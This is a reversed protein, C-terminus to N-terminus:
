RTWSYENREFFKAEGEYRVEKKISFSKTNLLYTYRFLANRDNDQGQKKTVIRLTGGTLKAREIVTEGNIARGDKGIIVTEKSNAQPEAPYQYDFIWSLKDEVAQTVILNSPISVKKNSRYDLYTLTGSWQAGTLLQLDKNTIKPTNLIALGFFSSAVILASVFASM